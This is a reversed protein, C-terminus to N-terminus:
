AAEMRAYYAKIDERAIQALIGAADCSHSADTLEDFIQAALVASVGAGQLSEYAVGAKRYKDIAARYENNRDLCIQKRQAFGALWSAKLAERMEMDNM